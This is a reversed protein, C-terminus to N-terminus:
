GFQGPFLERLMAEVQHLSIGERQERALRHEDEAGLRFTPRESAARLQVEVEHGDLGEYEPKDEVSLHGVFPPENSGDVSWLARYREFDKQSVRVWMGWVFHEGTEHVPVPLVGRIYHRRGDIIGIDDTFRCRRGRQASPVALFDGPRAYGIDMPLGGHEEGCTQCKFGM